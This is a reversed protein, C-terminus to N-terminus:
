NVTAPTAVTEDVAVVADTTRGHYVVRLRQAKFFDEDFPYNLVYIRYGARLKVPSPIEAFTESGSKLRYFNLGSGYQWNSEVERVGYTHNYWALVPYIEQVDADWNWEKFYHLRMCLAFYVSMAGLAVTLSRRNVAVVGATLTLLPVIWIATRDKPLLIHFRKLMLWHGLIAAALVGILLYAFAPQRRRFQWAALALVAPVLYPALFELAQMLSPNVIQPNLRYLSSERVTRFMEGLTRSGYWLEGTPFHLVEHITLFITVVLGPGACAGLLRLRERLTPARMAALLFVGGLMAANVLAFAANAAFSLAACISCVACARPDLQGEAAVALSVMLFAMALSYGRAAVLHDM